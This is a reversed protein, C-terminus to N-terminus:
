VRLYKCFSFFVAWLYLTKPYTQILLAEGSGGPHKPRKSVSCIQINRGLYARHTVRVYIKLFVLSIDTIEIDLTKTSVTNAEIVTRLKM